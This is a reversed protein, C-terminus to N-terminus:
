GADFTLRRRHAPLRSRGPGATIASRTACGLKSFIHSIHAEVTKPSLFLKDCIAQNSHGEAM